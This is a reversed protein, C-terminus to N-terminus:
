TRFATCSCCAPFEFTDKVPKGDPSLSILDHYVYQQVCETRHGNPVSVMPKCPKRDCRTIRVRQQHSDLNFIYLEVGNVNKAVRPLQYSTYQDCLEIEDIDVRNNFPITPLEGSAFM